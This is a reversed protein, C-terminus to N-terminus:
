YTILAHEDDSLNLVFLYWKTFAIILLLVAMANVITDLGRLYLCAFAQWSTYVGVANYKSKQQTVEWTKDM